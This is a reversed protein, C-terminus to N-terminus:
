NETLLNNIILLNAILNTAASVSSPIFGWVIGGFSAFILTMPWMHWHFSHAFAARIDLPAGSEISNYFEHALMSLPHGIFIGVAIGFLVGIIPYTWTRKRRILAELVAPDCQEPNM